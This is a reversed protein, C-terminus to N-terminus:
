GETFGEKKLVAGRGLRNRLGRPIMGEPGDGAPPPSQEM